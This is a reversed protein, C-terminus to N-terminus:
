MHMPAQGIVTSSSDFIREVLLGSRVITNGRTPLKAGASREEIRLRWELFPKGDFINALGLCCPSVRLGTHEESPRASGFIHPM